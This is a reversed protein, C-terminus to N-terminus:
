TTWVNQITAKYIKPPPQQPLPWDLQHILAAQAAEPQTIRELCICGGARLKFWVEVMQIRSFQHLRVLQSRLIASAKKARQLSRALVFTEGGEKLLQVRVGPKGAIAQWDGKLLEREFNALKRRPTGVLYAGRQRLDQLSDKSVIGRDFVWVRGRM